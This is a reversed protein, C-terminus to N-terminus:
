ARGISPQQDWIGEIYSNDLDPLGIRSFIASFTQMLHEIYPSKLLGVPMAFDEDGFALRQIFDPRVKCEESYEEQSLGSCIMSALLRPVHQIQRLLVVHGTLPHDPSISPLFYYGNLKQQALEKILAGRDSAYRTALEIIAHDSPGSNSCLLVDDHENVLSQFSARAKKSKADPLEPFLIELISKPEQTSLISASHGAAKLAGKMKGVINRYIRECLISRGDRHIWDDLSVIPLYNYIQVKSQAIDCRATIILGHVACDQYDEASACSFITGQSLAGLKPKAVAEIMAGSRPVRPNTASGLPLGHIAIKQVPTCGAKQHASAFDRFCFFFQWELSQNNLSQKNGLCSRTAQFVNTDAPYIRIPISSLNRTFIKRRLTVHKYFLHVRFM